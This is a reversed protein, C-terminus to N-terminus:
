SENNEVSDPQPNHKDIDSYSINREELLIDRMEFGIIRMLSLMPLGSSFSYEELKRREENDMDLLLNNSCYNLCSQQIEYGNANEDLEVHEVYQKAIEKGHINKSIENGYDTLQIPSNAETISKDDKRSLLFEFLRDIRGETNNLSAKIEDQGKNLDGLGTAIRKFKYHADYCWFGLFLIVLLTLSILTIFTGFNDEIIGVISGIIAQM